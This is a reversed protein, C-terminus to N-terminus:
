LDNISNVSIFFFVMTLLLFSLGFAVLVILWISRLDNPTLKARGDQPGIWKKEKKLPTKPGEIRLFNLGLGNAMINLPIFHSALTHTHNAPLRFFLALNTKPVFFHSLGLILASVFSFPISILEHMLRMYKYYPARPQNEKFSYEIANALFRYPLLFAFGGVAFLTATPLLTASYGLIISQASVQAATHPDTLANQKTLQKGLEIHNSWIKRQALFPILALLALATTAASFPSYQNAMYGVFYLIPLWIILTILGRIKLANKSRGQRNLKDATRKALTFLFSNINPIRGSFFKGAILDSVVAVM